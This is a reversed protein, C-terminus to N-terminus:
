FIDSNLIRKLKEGFSEKKEEKIPKNATDKDAKAIIATPQNKKGKRTQNKINTQKEAELRLMEDINFDQKVIYGHLNVLNVYQTIIGNLAMEQKLSPNFDDSVIVQLLDDKQKHSYFTPADHIMRNVVDEKGLLGIAFKDTEDYPLNFLVRQGRIYVVQEAVKDIDVAVNSSIVVTRKFEECDEKLFDYIMERLQLSFGKCPQDFVTFKARCAIAMICNIAVQVKRDFNRYKYKDTPINMADFYKLAIDKSFNPYEEALKDMIVDLTMFGPLYRKDDLYVLEHKYELAEDPNDFTIEGEVPNEKKAILHLFFTKGVDKAGVVAVIKNLPMELEDIVFKPEKASGLRVNRFIINGM